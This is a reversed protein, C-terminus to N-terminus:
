RKWWGSRRPADPPPADVDIVQTRAAAPDVMAPEPEPTPAPKEPEPAVAVAEEVAAPAEEGAKRRPRRIRKPKEAPVEDEAPPPGAYIM